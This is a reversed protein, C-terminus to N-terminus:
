DGSDLDEGLEWRAWRRQLAQRTIGIPKAIDVWSVGQARLVKVLHYQQANMRKKITEAAALAESPLAAQMALRLLHQMERLTPASM